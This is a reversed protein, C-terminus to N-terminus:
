ALRVRPDVAAYLLDAVLLGIMTLVSGLMLVTLVIPWDKQLIATLLTPGMGPVNFIYEIVVSGAIAAPFVSGVITIIPFLANRFAHRWIVKGEPLGKARATRVYDQSLATVMGGRMQRSIFALAPYAICAVPLVLHPAALWIKEWWPVAVPINGPFSGAFIDMGYRSNTFFVLLMTAAWFAPLSYLMFTGLSIARDTRQGRKVAAWVGLPISLLFAVAIAALNLVLTWFLAPGVKDAVPLRLYVSTGFDGRLFGSFWRHYQNDLGHWRLAPLRLKGPTAQAQVNEWSKKLLVFDGGLRASATSDNQLATEMRGLEAEISSAQDAGYLEGIGTKVPIIKSRLSDPLALMALHLRRVQQHYIEIQPWNGYQDILKELGERRDKFVIRYLTDPRAQTTLTFYFAPMDLGLKEAGLRYEAEAKRLDGPRSVNNFPDDSLFSVVPDGAGMKSLGFALLSVVLLTPLFLLLRKLTYRLM